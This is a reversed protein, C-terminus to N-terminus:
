RSGARLSGLQWPGRRAAWSPGRVVPAHDIVVQLVYQLVVQVDITNVAPDPYRRRVGATGCHRTARVFVCRRKLLTRAVRPLAVTFFFNNHEQTGNRNRVWEVWTWLKQIDARPDAGDAIFLTADVSLKCAVTAGM